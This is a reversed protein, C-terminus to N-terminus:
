QNLKEREGQPATAAPSEQAAGEREREVALRPNDLGGVVKEVLRRHEEEHEMPLADADSEYAIAVERKGTAPNVLLKITMKAM